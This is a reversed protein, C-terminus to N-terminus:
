EPGAFLAGPPLPLDLAWAFLAYCGLSVMVGSAAAPGPRAGLLLALAGALVTTSPLFGVPVLLLAYGVLLGVAMAQGLLHRGSPWGPSPDPRLAIYLGLLGIPVALVQPFASPGVVDAFDIQYEGAAWGYWAALLALAVGAIRDSV